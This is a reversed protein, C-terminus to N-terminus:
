SPIPAMCAGGAAQEGRISDAAAAQAAPPRAATLSSHAPRTAAHGNGPYLESRPAIYLTKLNLAHNSNSM